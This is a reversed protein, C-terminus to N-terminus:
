KLQLRLIFIEYGYVKFYKFVLRPYPSGKIPKQGYKKWKWLDSTLNKAKKECVKNM